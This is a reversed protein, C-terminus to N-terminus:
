RDHQMSEIVRRSCYQLIDGLRTLTKEKDRTVGLQDFPVLDNSPLTLTQDISVLFQTAVWESVSLAMQLTIHNGLIPFDSPNAVAPALLLM